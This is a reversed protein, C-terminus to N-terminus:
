VRGELIAAAKELMGNFNTVEAFLGGDKSGVDKAVNQLLIALPIEPGEDERGETKAKERGGLIAAEIAYISDSLKNSALRADVSEHYEERLEDMQLALDDKQKCIEMYEKRMIIKEKRATKIRGTLIAMNNGASALDLFLDALNAQFLQAVGVKSAERRRQDRDEIQSAAEHLKATEADLMEKFFQALVESPSVRKAHRLWVPEKMEKPIKLRFVEIPYVPGRERKQHKKPQKSSDSRITLQKQKAQTPNAVLKPTPGSEQEPESREDADSEEDSSVFLAEDKKGSKKLGVEPSLEDVEEEVEETPEKDRELTLRRGSRPVHVESSLEDLEESEETIRGRQPKRVDPSLEDAEEDAEEAEESVVVRRARNGARSSKPKIQDRGDAKPKDPSLDDEVGKERAVQHQKSLKPDKTAAPLAKDKKPRGLPRTAPTVPIAEPPSSKASPPGAVTKPLETRKGAQIVALPTRRISELAAGNLRSPVPTAGAPHSSVGVAKITGFVMHAENAAELEDPADDHDQPSATLAARPTPVTSKQASAMHEEDIRELEDSENEEPSRSLASKQGRKRKGTSITPTVISRQELSKARGPTITPKLKGPRPISGPASISRSRRITGNANREASGIPSRRSSPRSSLPQPTKRASLRSKLPAPAGFSFGFNAIAHSAGAGRLREAKRENRDKPPM